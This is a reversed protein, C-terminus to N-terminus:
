SSQDPRTEPAWRPEDADVPRDPATGVAGHHRNPQVPTGARGDDGVHDLADDDRVSELRRM